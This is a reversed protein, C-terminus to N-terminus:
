STAHKKREPDTLTKISEDKWEHNCAFCKFETHQENPKVARSKCKPCVYYFPTKPM